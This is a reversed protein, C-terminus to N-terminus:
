NKFLSVTNEYLLSTDGYIVIRIIPYSYPDGGLGEPLKYSKDQWTWQHTEGKTPQNYIFQDKIESFNPLARKLYSMALTEAEAKTIKPMQNTSEACPTGSKSLAEMESPKLNRIRVTTLSHNRADTHYEYVSCVGNILEKQEYVNVLREWGSVKEISIGGGKELQSVKGVIFYPQPRDTGKYVLELNPQAMFTRITAMDEATSDTAQKVPLVPTKGGQKLWIFGAGLGALILLMVVIKTKM